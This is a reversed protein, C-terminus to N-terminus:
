LRTCGVQDEDKASSFNDKLNSHLSSESSVLEGTCTLVGGVLTEKWM